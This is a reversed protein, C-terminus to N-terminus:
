EHSPKTEGCRSRARELLDILLQLKEQSLHGLLERPLARVAPDMEELLKLGEATIETWVVRRDKRDRQQRALKRTKLRGLLRTIDPEATIM